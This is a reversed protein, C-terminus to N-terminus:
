PAPASSLDFNNTIRERPAETTGVFGPDFNASATQEVPAADVPEAVAVVTYQGEVATDIAYNFTGNPTYPAVEPADVTLFDFLYPATNGMGTANGNTDFTEFSLQASDILVTTGVSLTQTINVFTAPKIEDTNTV